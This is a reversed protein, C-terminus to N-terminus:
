CSKQKLWIHKVMNVKGLKKWYDIKINLICAFDNNQEGGKVKTKLLDWNKIKPFIVSLM